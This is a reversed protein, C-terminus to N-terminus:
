VLVILVSVIAARMFSFSSWPSVLLRFYVKKPAATPVTGARRKANRYYLFSGKGALFQHRFFKVVNEDNHHEIVIQPDYILKAGYEALRLNLDREEAGLRFSPDFGNVKKLAATSYVTNNSTLFPLVTSGDNVMKKFFNMIHDNTVAWINERNGTVAGGGCGDCGTAAINDAYRALWGSPALCDDDICAIYDKTAHKLGLNRGRSPGQNEQHFCRLKGEAQLKDLFERTGDSSGDNVVIIEYDRFDQRFLSDLTNRLLQLRNYTPVIVSFTINM